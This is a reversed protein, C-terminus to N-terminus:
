QTPSATDDAQQTTPRRCRAIELRAPLSAALAQRHHPDVLRGIREKRRSAVVKAGARVSLPELSLVGVPPHDAGLEVDTLEAVQGAADEEAIEAAQRATIFAPISFRSLARPRPRFAIVQAGGDVPQLDTGGLPAFRLTWIRRSKRHPPGSRGAGDPRSHVNHLLVAGPAM